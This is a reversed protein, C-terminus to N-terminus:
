MKQGCKGGASSPRKSAGSEPRRRGIGPASRARAVALASGQPAHKASLPSLGLLAVPDLPKPCTLESYAQRVHSKDTENLRPASYPPIVIMKSPSTHLARGAPSHQARGQLPASLPRRKQQIPKEQPNRPLSSDKGFQDGYPTGWPALLSLSSQAPSQARPMAPSREEVIVQGATNSKMTAYPPFPGPGLDIPVSAEQTEDVTSLKARGAPESQTSMNPSYTQVSPSSSRAHRSPSSAPATPCAAHLVSDAVSTDRCYDTSTPATSADSSDRGERNACKPSAKQQMAALMGLLDPVVSAPVKGEAALEQALAATSVASSVSPQISSESVQTDSVQSPVAKTDERQAARAATAQPVGRVSSPHHHSSRRGSRIRSASSGSKRASSEVRPAPLADNLLRRSIRENMESVEDLFTQSPEPQVHRSIDSASVHRSFSDQQLKWDTDKVEQRQALGISEEALKAGKAAEDRFRAVIKALKKKRAEIDADTTVGVDTVVTTSSSELSDRRVKLAPESSSRRVVKEVSSDASRHSKSFAGKTKKKRSSAAVGDVNQSCVSKTEPVTRLRILLDKISSRSSMRRITSVTKASATSANSSNSRRASCRSPDDGRTDFLHRLIADAERIKEVTVGGKAKLRRRVQEAARPKMM